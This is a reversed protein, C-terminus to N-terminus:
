TKASELNYVYWAIQEFNGGTKAYLKQAAINRMDTGVYMEPIGREAAIKKLFVILDTGVNKKRYAEDVGIEYLFIENVQEKYMPLEYATLGGIIKDKDMAVVVHFDERALLNRLYHDSPILVQEEGDDEQFWIFLAKALSVETTILKKFTFM